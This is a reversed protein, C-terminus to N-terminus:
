REMEQRSIRYEIKPESFLGIVLDIDKDEKTILEYYKTDIEIDKDKANLDPIIGYMLALRDKDLPVGTLCRTEEPTTLFISCSYRTIGAPDSWAKSIGMAAHLEAPDEPARLPLNNIARAAADIFIKAAERREDPIAPDAQQRAKKYAMESLINGAQEIAAKYKRPNNNADELIIKFLKYDITIQQCLNNQVDGLIPYGPDLQYRRHQNDFRPSIWLFLKQDGPIISGFGVGGEEAPKRLMNSAYMAYFFDQVGNQQGNISIPNPLPHNKKKELLEMYM